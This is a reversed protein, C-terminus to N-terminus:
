LCDTRGYNAAFDGLSVGTGGQAYTALDKGDVDKDEDFDGICIEGSVFHANLFFRGGQSDGCRSVRILVAEYQNMSLAVASDRLYGMDTETCADPCCSSSFDDNCAEPNLQSGDAPSHLSLVTDMGTDEGYMDNSGCTNAHFIGAEPAEFLFWVDPEDSSQREKM